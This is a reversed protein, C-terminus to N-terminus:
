AALSPWLGLAQFCKPARVAGKKILRVEGGAGAGNWVCREVLVAGSVFAPVVDAATPCLYELLRGGAFSQAGAHRHRGRDVAGLRM